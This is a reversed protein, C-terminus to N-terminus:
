AFPPGLHFHSFYPGLGFREPYSTNAEFLNFQYPAYLLSLTVKVTEPSSVAIAILAL